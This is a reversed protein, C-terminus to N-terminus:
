LHSKYATFICQLAVFIYKTGAGWREDGLLFIGTKTLLNSYKEKLKTAVLSTDSRVKSTSLVVVFLQTCGRYETKNHVHHICKFKYVHVLLVHGKDHWQTDVHPNILM